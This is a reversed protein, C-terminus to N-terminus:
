TCAQRYHIWENTFICHTVVEFIRESSGKKEAETGFRLQQLYSGLVRVRAVVFRKRDGVVTSYVWM